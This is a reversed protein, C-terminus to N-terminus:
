LESDPGSPYSLAHEHRTDQKRRAPPLQTAHTGGPAPDLESGFYRELELAFARADAPPPFRRGLRLRYTLPLDPRRFLPWHKGLFASDAEIIVTQVAAGAERAILGTSGKLPNVPPRTTRTGEPFLLLHSGGRLEAVAQKIMGHGADNRIFRALRAGAGFLPNDMIGAKLICGVDPLRSLIMVADLLSPHNPAIILSREDRLTDLESLDFRCAGMRSLAGLYFRFGEMIMRRGLARGPAAPLLRYLVVAFASWALCIAALLGLGFILAFYEALAKTLPNRM